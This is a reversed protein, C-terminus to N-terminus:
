HRVQVTVVTEATRTSVRDTARVRFTFAGEQALATVLNRASDASVGVMGLVEHGRFEFLQTTNAPVNTFQWTPAGTDNWSNPPLLAITVDSLRDVRYSIAAVQEFTDYV